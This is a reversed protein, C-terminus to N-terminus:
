SHHQNALASNVSTANSSMDLHLRVCTDAEPPVAWGEHKPWKLCRLRQVFSLPALFMASASKLQSSVQKCYSTSCSLLMMVKNPRLQSCTLHCVKQWEVCRHTNINLNIVHVKSLCIFESHSRPLYHPHHTRTHTPEHGRYFPRHMGVGMQVYPSHICLTHNAM